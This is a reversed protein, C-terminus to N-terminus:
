VKRGTKFSLPFSELSPNWDVMFAMTIFIVPTLATAYSLPHMLKHFFNGKERFVCINKKVNGSSSSQILQKTMSTNHLSFCSFQFYTYTINFCFKVMKKKLICSFSFVNCFKFKFCRLLNDKPINYRPKFQSKLISEQFFPTNVYESSFSKWFCSRKHM